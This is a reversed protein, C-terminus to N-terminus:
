MSTIPSTQYRCWTFLPVLKKYILFGIVVGITNHLVDDAECVGRKMIYQSVEITLSCLFGITVTALFRRHPLHNWLSLPGQEHRTQIPIVQPFLIGIPLLLLINLINQKLMEMSDIGEFIQRYSEFFETEYHIGQYSIRTLVTSSIVLFVFLYLATGSLLNGLYLKGSRYLPILIGLVLIIISIGVVLEMATWKPFYTKVISSLQSDLFVLSHHLM